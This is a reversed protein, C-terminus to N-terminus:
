GNSLRFCRLVRRGMGYVKAKVGNKREVKEIMHTLDDVTTRFTARYTNCIKRDRVKGQLEDPFCKSLNDGVTWVVM